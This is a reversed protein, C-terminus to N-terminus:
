TKKSLDDFDVNVGQTQLIVEIVEEADNVYGEDTKKFCHVVGGVILLAAIILAKKLKGM